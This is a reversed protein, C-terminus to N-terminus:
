FAPKGCLAKTTPILKTKRRWRTPNIRPRGGKPDIKQQTLPADTITTRNKVIIKM